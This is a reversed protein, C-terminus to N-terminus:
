CDGIENKGIKAVMRDTDELSQIHTGSFSAHRDFSVAGFDRGWRDFSHKIVASTAGPTPPVSLALESVTKQPGNIFATYGAYLQGDPRFMCNLNIAGIM